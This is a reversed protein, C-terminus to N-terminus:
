HYAIKGQSLASIVLQTCDNLIKSMDELKRTIISNRGEGLNSVRWGFIGVNESNAVAGRSREISLRTSTEDPSAVNVSLVEAYVISYWFISQHGLDSAEINRTNSFKRAWNKSVSAHVQPAGLSVEISEARGDVQM